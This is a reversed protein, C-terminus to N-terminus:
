LYRDVLHAGHIKIANFDVVDLREFTGAELEVIGIDLAGAAAAAGEANLTRENGRLEVKAGSPEWWSGKERGGSDM